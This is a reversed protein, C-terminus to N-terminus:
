ARAVQELAVARGGPHQELQVAAEVMDQDVLGLVGVRLLPLHDLGQGLLEEDAFARAFARARDERDAVGLLRDVAELAGVRVGERAHARM